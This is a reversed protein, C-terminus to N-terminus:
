MTCQQVFTVCAPKSLGFNLEGQFQPQHDQAGEVQGSLMFYMRDWEVDLLYTVKYAPNAM